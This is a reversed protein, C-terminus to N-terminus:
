LLPLNPPLRPLRPSLPQNESRKLQKLVDVSLNQKQSQTTNKMPSPNVPHPQCPQSDSQPMQTVM